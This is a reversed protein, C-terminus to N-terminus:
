KKFRKAPSKKFEQRGRKRTPKEEQQEEEGEEQELEALGFKKSADRRAEKEDGMYELVSVRPGKASQQKNKMLSDLKILDTFSELDSLENQPAKEEQRLQKQQKKSLKVRTLYSNEFDEIQKAFSNESKEVAGINMEEEPADDFINKITKIMKSSQLKKTLKKEQKERRRDGKEDFSVATVKPAVYVEEEEEEDKQENDRSGGAEEDNSSSRLMNDPNPGHKVRPAEEQKQFSNSNDQQQQQQSALTILKDVQHKMREDLPRINELLLKVELLRDFIPHEHVKFSSAKMLMFFVTNICYTLLLHFKTELYSIGNNM